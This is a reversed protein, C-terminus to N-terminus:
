AAVTALDAEVTWPGTTAAPTRTSTSCRRSSPARFPASAWPTSPRAHLGQRRQLRLGVQGSSPQAHCLGDQLHQERPQVAVRHLLHAGRQPRLRRRRPPRGREVGRLLPRPGSRAAGCLAAHDAAHDLHARAPAGQAARRLGQHGRRLSCRLHRPLAIEEHRPAPAQRHAARGPVAGHPERADVVQAPRSPVLPLVGPARRRPGDRALRQPRRRRLHRPARADAGPRARGHRRPRHRRACAVTLFPLDAIRKPHCAYATGM